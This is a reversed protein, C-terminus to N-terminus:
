RTEERVQSQARLLAIRAQSENSFAVIRGSQLCHGADTRELMAPALRRWAFVGGALGVCAAIALLLDRYAASELGALPALHELMLGLSVTSLVLGATPLGYAGMVLWLWGSDPDDDFEVIVEDGAEVARDSSCHLQVAAVGQNFIGAGCGQGRACRACQSAARIEVAVTDGAAAADLAVGDRRM